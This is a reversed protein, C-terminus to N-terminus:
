LRAAAAAINALVARHDRLIQVVLKPAGAREVFTKVAARVRDRDHQAPPVLQVARLREAIVALAANDLPQATPVAPRRPASNRRKM